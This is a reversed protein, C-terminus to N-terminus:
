QLYNKIQLTLQQLIGLQQKLGAREIANLEDGDIRKRALPQLQAALHNLQGTFAFVEPPLTKTKKRYDRLGMERMYESASLGAKRARIEIYSKETLTCWLSIKHSKKNSKKTHM